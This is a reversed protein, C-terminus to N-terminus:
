YRCSNDPTSVLMAIFNQTRSSPRSNIEKRNVVKSSLRGAHEGAWKRMTAANRHITTYYSTEYSIGTTTYTSQKHVILKNAKRVENDV